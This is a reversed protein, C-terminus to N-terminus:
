EQVECEQLRWYEHRILDTVVPRFYEDNPRGFSCQADENTHVLKMWEEAKKLETIRELVKKVTM